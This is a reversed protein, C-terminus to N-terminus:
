PHSRTVIGNAKAIAIWIAANEASSRLGRKRTGATGSAHTIMPRAAAGASSRTEPRRAWFATIASNIARPATVTANWVRSAGRRKGGSGSSAAEASLWAAAEPAQGRSWSM